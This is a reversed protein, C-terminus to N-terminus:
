QEFGLERCVGARIQESHLAGLGAAVLAAESIEGAVVARQQREKLLDALRGLHGHNSGASDHGSAICSCNQSDPRDGDLQAGRQKTRRLCPGRRRDRICM